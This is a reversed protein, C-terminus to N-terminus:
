ALSRSRAVAIAIGDAHRRVSARLWAELILGPVALALAYQTSILATSVGAGAQQFGSPENALSAFSGSIGMVTGILGLLPLVACLVRALWLGRTLEVTTDTAIARISEGDVHALIHSRRRYLALAREALVIYLLMGVLLIVPMLVGGAHWWTM